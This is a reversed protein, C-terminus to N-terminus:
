VTIGAKEYVEAERNAHRMRLHAVELSQLDLGPIDYAKGNIDWLAHIVTGCDGCKWQTEDRSFPWEAAYDQWAKLYSEQIGSYLKTDPANLM